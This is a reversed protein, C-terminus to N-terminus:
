MSVIKRSMLIYVIGLVKIINDLVARSINHRPLSKPSYESIPVSIFVCPLTDYSFLFSLLENFNKIDLLLLIFLDIYKDICM